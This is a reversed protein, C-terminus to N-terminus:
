NNMGFVTGYKGEKLYEFKEREEATLLEKLDEM